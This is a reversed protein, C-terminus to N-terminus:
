LYGLIELRKKIEESEKEWEEVPPTFQSLGGREDLMDFLYKQDDDVYFRKVWSCRPCKYEVVNVADRIALTMYKESLIQSFRLFMKSDCHRCRMEFLPEHCYIDYTRRWMKSGSIYEIASNKGNSATIIKTLKDVVGSLFTKM